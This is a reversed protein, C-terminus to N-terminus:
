QDEYSRDSYEYFYEREHEPEDDEEMLGEPARHNSQFNCATATTCPTRPRHDLSATTTSDLPLRSPDVHMTDPSPVVPQPM